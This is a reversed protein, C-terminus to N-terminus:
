RSRPAAEVEYMLIAATVSANLSTVSGHMPLTVIYDCQKKVLPSIGKGESGIVLVTPEEYMGDRYDRADKMDTGAIWYGQDKLSKLAQSLNTVVAVPVTYAAGTSAKVAAPTLSASHHRTIIVGDAGACDATRLIAGLNHPDQIGDLAIYFGKANKKKQLLTELSYTPIERVRAAVGNHAAGGTLQDLRSRPVEVVPLNLVEAKKRFERDKLTSSVYLEEVASPDNELQSIVNKGYVIM